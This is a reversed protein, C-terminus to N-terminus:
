STTKSINTRLISQQLKFCRHKEESALSLVTEGDEYCRKLNKWDEQTRGEEQGEGWGMDKQELSFTANSSALM